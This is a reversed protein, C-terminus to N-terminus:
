KTNQSKGSNTNEANTTSETRTNNGRNNDRAFNNNERETQKEKKVKENEDYLTKFQNTKKLKIALKTRRNGEVVNTETRIDVYTVYKLRVLAEAATAASLAGATGSVVEITEANLLFEKILYMVRKTGDERGVRLERQTDQSM